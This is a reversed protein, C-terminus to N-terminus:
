TPRREAEPMAVDHEWVGGAVDRSRDGRFRDFSAIIGGLVMIVVSIFVLRVTPNVHLQLTVTEGSNKEFDVMVAYLDHWFGGLVGVENMLEPKTPYQSKAPYLAGIERGDRVVSLPAEFLKYNEVDRVQFQGLTFQYGYLTTSEGSRLTVESNVGRYNGLFGLIALLVGVHAIFAGTYATNLGVFSFLGSIRGQGGRMFPRVRYELDLVLCVLSWFVLFIGVLQAAFPWARHTQFVGGAWCFAAAPLVAFIAARVVVRRGGPIKGSHYRLLNGAAIAVIMALGIWPAFANFYPAQISIRQSSVAETIIPFITGIFVIAALTLLLFQTVVLASERSVGWVKGADPPLISQARFAFLTLSGLLLIAIFVLYNPGINGDAFSHVSTIIGSRTIFTGFFSFFFALIALIIGLRKLHGLKDQVVMSHLLATAMIWPMFSSNEVPDWAWYGAWGLEVYAWHGGLAIGATLACWAFLTWRRTTKLWGETIDGYAMAAISYAFPIALATYGIFLTPPHIAMYPNQLLPNKGQGNPPAPLQLVFPDSYSVSLYLMWSTVLLLAVGVWPMIHENDRNGTWLGIAAFVCLLLTWLLHSGELASWFTTFTYFPPLDNSSNRWIYAISYDRSFLSLWMVVSALVVFLAMMTAAIRGSRYLRRHRKVAAFFNAFLGYVSFILAFLLFIFGLHAPM